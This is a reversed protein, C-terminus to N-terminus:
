STTMVEAEILDAVLIVSDCDPCSGGLGVYRVPDDVQALM